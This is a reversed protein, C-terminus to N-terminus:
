SRQPPALNQKPRIDDKLKYNHSLARVLNRPQNHPLRCPVHCSVHVSEWLPTSCLFHLPQHILSILNIFVVLSQWWVSSCGTGIAIVAFCPNTNSICEATSWKFDTPWFQGLKLWYLILLFILWGHLHASFYWHATCFWTHMYIISLGGGPQWDIRVM